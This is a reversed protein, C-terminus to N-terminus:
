PFLAIQQDLRALTGHEPAPPHFPAVVDDDAAGSSWWDGCRGRAACSLCRWEVERMALGLPVPEFDSALRDLVRDLHRGTSRRHAIVIPDPCAPLGVDGLMRDLVGATALRGIERGTRARERWAAFAAAMRATLPHTM